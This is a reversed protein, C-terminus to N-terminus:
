LLSIDLLNDVERALVTGQCGRNSKREFALRSGHPIFLTPLRSM